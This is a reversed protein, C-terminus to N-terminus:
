GEITEKVDSQYEEEFLEQWKEMLNEYTFALTAFTVQNSYLKDLLQRHNGDKGAEYIDQLIATLQGDVFDKACLM